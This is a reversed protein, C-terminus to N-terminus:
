GTPTETNAGVAVVLHVHNELDVPTGGQGATVNGTATIAGQVNFAGIHSWVGNSHIGGDNLLKFYSGSVHVMVMEGANAPPPQQQSSFIRGTIMLSNADGDQPSLRVQDGINPPCSMGWGNGVWVTEIPLWGSQVGEPEITVKALYTTPNVSTVIGIRNQALLANRSDAHLDLAARM